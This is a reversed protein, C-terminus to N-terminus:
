RLRSLGLAGMIALQTGSLSNEPTGWGFPDGKLRSKYGTEKTGTASVTIPQLTEARYFTSNGTVEAVNAVNRMTYFYDAALRDVLSTELNDIMDGVNTFWDILWTWPIARWVVKPTPKFGFIKALMSNTWQVDRPGGPLWYRFRASAWVRDISNIRAQYSCPGYFYTVFSPGLVNGSGQASYTNANADSLRIARRIPKGEDRLIQKLTDQAQRQTIVFSVVDKLLAEWGFKLALYYDGIEHLGQAQFRQSLMRPVDKLEYIANLGNMSPRDPKMKAYATAGYASADAFVAAPISGPMM